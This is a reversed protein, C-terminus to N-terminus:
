GKVTHFLLPFSTHVVCVQKVTLTRMTSSSLYPNHNYIHHAKRDTFQSCSFHSGTPETTVSFLDLLKTTTVFLSIGNPVRADNFVPLLLISFIV